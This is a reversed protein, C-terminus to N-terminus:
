IDFVVEGVWQGDTKEIRFKYYTVAKVDIKLVQRRPDISDGILTARIIGTKNDLKDIKIKKILFSEVDKIYIIESLWDFYLDSLSDAKIEVPIQRNEKLKDPDVMINTLGIASDSFLEVLSAGTAKMSVDAGTDIDIYSYPM